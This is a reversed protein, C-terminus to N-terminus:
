PQAHGRSGRWAAARFALRRAGMCSAARWHAEGLTASRVEFPLAPILRVLRTQSHRTWLAAPLPCQALLSLFARVRWRSRRGGAGTKGCPRRRGGGAASAAGPSGGGAFARERARGPTKRERGFRTEGEGSVCVSRCECGVSSAAAAGAAAGATWSFASAVKVNPAADAM